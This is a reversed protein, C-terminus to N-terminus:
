VNLNYNQKYLPEGLYQDAFSRVYAQLIKAENKTVSMSFDTGDKQNFYDPAFEKTFGDESNYLKIFNKDKANKAFDNVGFLKGYICLALLYGGRGSPHSSNDRITLEYNWRKKVYTKYYKAGDEDDEPIEIPYNGNFYENYNAFYKVSNLISCKCEKAAKLHENYRKDSVSTSYYMGHFICRKSSKISGSVYKYFNVDTSYINETLCNNQAIIYDWKGARNLEGFDMEMIESLYYGSGTSIYTGDKWAVYNIKGSQLQSLSWDGHTARVVIASKKTSAILKSLMQPYGNYFTYSNGVMLIKLPHDITVDAIVGNHFYYKYGKITKYGKLKKNVLGNHYYKKGHLGNALKGKYVYYIKKGFKKYGSFEKNVRGHYFYKKKHLGTYLESKKLLYKVGKVKYYGTMKKDKKGEKYYKTNVLGNALKGHYFFRKKGKYKIYGTKTKDRIGNKYYRDNACGTFLVGSKVRYVVGNVKVKGNAKKNVRGHRYVKNAHIGSYTRSKELYYSKGDSTKVRGYTNGDILKVRGNVIIFEKGQAKVTLNGAKKGNKLRYEIKLESKSLQFYGNTKAYANVPFTLMVALAIFLISAKVTRKMM